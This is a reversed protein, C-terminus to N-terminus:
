IIIYKPDFTLQFLQAQIISTSYSKPTRVEGDCSFSHWREKWSLSQSAKNLCILAMNCLWCFILIYLLGCTLARWDALIHLLAASETQAAYFHPFSTLLSPFSLASPFCLSSRPFDASKSRNEKQGREKIPQGKAYNSYDLGICAFFYYSCFVFFLFCFIIVYVFPSFFM